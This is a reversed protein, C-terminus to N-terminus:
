SMSGFPLMDYYDFLLWWSLFKRENPMQRLIENYRSISRYAKAMCIADFTGHMRQKSQVEFNYDELHNFMTRAKEPLPISSTPFLPDKLQFGKDSILIRGEPHNPNIKDTYM